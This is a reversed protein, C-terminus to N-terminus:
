AHDHEPRAYREFRQNAEQLLEPTMTLYHQTSSIDVHGLYTALQPLLRQVDSGSRYWAILHHQVMTHRLDHLRPQGKTDGDRRLGAEKRVRDFLAEAVCVSACTGSRTIAFLASGRGAPMPIRQCRCQMYSSLAVTLKPGTPVQRTKFFKTDRVIIVANVLDVDDLTLSLAESIRLGTGYLLLLLTRFSLARMPSLPTNLIQTATLLRKLEDTSYIHPTRTPPFQPIVTPLPAAATLGRGVAYRYFSHLVSAKQKWNRTVSGTGSLFVLVADSKVDAIDGDGMTRCFSRLMKGESEMRMGLANKFSLYVEIADHLKM